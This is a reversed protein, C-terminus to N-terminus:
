PSALDVLSAALGARASLFASPTCGVFRRFDRAMQPQDFYGAAQAAATWSPADSEQFADFVRRFRVISALLRPPVGVESAFRRQLARASLGSIRELRDMGIRGDSDTIAEVCRVVAPDPPRAAAALRQAVYDQVVVFRADADGAQRVAEVLAAVAAPEHLDDLAVRRDTAANLPAGLFSAAGAPRFRVAVVGAPERARLRLPRTLQGAFLAPPQVRWSGEAGEEEYPARWHVILECCGDPAISQPEPDTGTFSWACVVHSTVAADPGIERYGEGM